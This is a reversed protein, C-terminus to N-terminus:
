ACFNKAKLNKPSSKEVEFSELVLMLNKIKENGNFAEFFLKKSM